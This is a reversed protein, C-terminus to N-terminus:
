WVYIGPRLPRRSQDFRSEVFQGDSPSGNEVRKVLGTDVKAKLNMGAFVDVIARRKLHKQLPDVIMGSAIQKKIGAMENQLLEIVELVDIEIMLADFHKVHLVRLKARGAPLANVSTILGPDIARATKTRQTVALHVEGRNKGLQGLIVVLTPSYEFPLAAELAAFLSRGFTSRENGM